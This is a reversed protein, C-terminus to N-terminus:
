KKITGFTVGRLLQSQLLYTVILIPILFLTVIAALLGFDAGVEGGLTRVMAPPITRTENSTLILAFFLENWTLILSFVVTAAMGAKVQPLCIKFFVRFESSGDMRAADEVDPSLEDFFSKMMWITFALNFATYLPIIGYYEGAVGTVQFMIVIPITVVIPPLMRTTLIIFMYTDTGPLAFRSFGYAALTGIILALLVSAGAIGISNAFYLPFSTETETQSVVNQQVFVSSFNQTTYSFKCEGDDSSCDTFVSEVYAGFSEASIDLIDNRGQFAYLVIILVPLFYVLAIFGAFVTRGWGATGIERHQRAM